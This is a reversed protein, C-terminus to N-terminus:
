PGGENLPTDQDLRLERALERVAKALAVAVARLEPPEESQGFQYINFIAEGFASVRYLEGRYDLTLSVRASVASGPCGLITFYILCPFLMRLYGHTIDEVRLLFRVPRRNKLNTATISQGNLTAQLAVALRQRMQYAQNQSALIIPPEWRLESAEVDILIPAEASIPASLTTANLSESLTPACGMCLASLAGGVLVWRKLVSAISLARKIQQSPENEGAERLM